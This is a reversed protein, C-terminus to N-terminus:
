QTTGHGTVRCSDEIIDASTSFGRQGAREETDRIKQLAPKIDTINRWDKGVLKKWDGFFDALVGDMDVFIESQSNVNEKVEEKNKDPSKADELKSDEDSKQNKKINEEKNNASM